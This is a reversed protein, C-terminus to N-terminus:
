IVKYVILWTFRIQALPGPCQSGIPWTVSEQRSRESEDGELVRRMGRLARRTAQAVTEDYGEANKTWTMKIQDRWNEM